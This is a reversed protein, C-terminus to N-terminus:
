SKFLLNDVFDDIDLGDVNGSFDVDACTCAGVGILCDVFPPVDAIDVTLNRDVDAACSFRPEIQGRIEGGGFNATHINVYTLGDLIGEEQAAAYTWFGLKPSGLAFPFLVGAASGRPAFGHIHAANEASSLGGYHIFFGLRNGALDHSFHGVGIATSATPEQPGEITALSNTIQGRIEGNRFNTTHINVYTLGALISGEQAEAYNWVGIKPSGFPMHHIVGTAASGHPDMGHIHAAMEASSLGSIRIHYRLTNAQTDIVFTGFGTGTAGTGSPPQQSGTITAVLSVIQGRIEGGGFANSHINVYTRGALIDAEQAATYNWVGIKPSGLPLTHLVGAPAGPDAFGHIHAATEGSAIGGFEIRYRMIDAVTDIVFIGTGLASSAVPEQQGELNCVYGFVTQQASATTSTVSIISGILLVSVTLGCRTM